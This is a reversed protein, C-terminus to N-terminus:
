FLEFHHLKPIFTLFVKALILILYTRTSDISICELVNFIGPVRNVTFSSGTIKFLFGNLQFPTGNFIFDVPSFFPFINTM